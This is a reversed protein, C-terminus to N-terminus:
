NELDICTGEPILDLLKLVRDFHNQIAKTSEEMDIVDQKAKIINEKIYNVSCLTALADGFTVTGNSLSELLYHKATESLLLTLIDSLPVYSLTKVEFPNMFVEKEEKKIKQKIEKWERNIIRTKCAKCVHWRNAGCKETNPANPRIVVTHLEKESFLDKCIDCRKMRKKM